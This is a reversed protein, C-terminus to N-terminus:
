GLRSLLLIVLWSGLDVNAVDGGVEAGGVIGDLVAEAGDLLLGFDQLLLDAIARLVLDSRSALARALRPSRLLSNTSKITYSVEMDTVKRFTHHQHQTAYNDGIATDALGSRRPPGGLLVSKLLLGDLVGEAAHYITAERVHVRSVFAQASEVELVAHGQGVEIISQVRILLKCQPPLKSLRYTVLFM